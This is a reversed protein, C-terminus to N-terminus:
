FVDLAWIKYYDTNQLELSIACRM